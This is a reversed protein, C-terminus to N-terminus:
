RDVRMLSYTLETPTASLITIRAGSHEFTRQESLNVRIEAEFPSLALVSVGKPAAGVATAIGGTTQLAVNGGAVNGTTTTGPRTLFGGGLRSTTTENSYIPQDRFIFRATTDDVMGLYRLEQVGEDVERGWLDARGFVNPMDRSQRIRFVPQGVSARLTKDQPTVLRSYHEISGCAALGSGLAVVAAVAILRGQRIM